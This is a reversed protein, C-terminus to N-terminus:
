NRMAGAVRAGMQVYNEIWAFDRFEWLMSFNDYLQNFDCFTYVSNSSEIVQIFAIQFKILNKPKYIARFEKMRYGGQIVGYM